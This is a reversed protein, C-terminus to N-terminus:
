PYFEHATITKLKIGNERFAAYTFDLSIGSAVSGCSAPVGIEIPDVANETRGLV